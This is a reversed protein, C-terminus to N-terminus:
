LRNKSNMTENIWFEAAIWLALVRLEDKDEAGGTLAKSRDILEESAM